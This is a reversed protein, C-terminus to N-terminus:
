HITIFDKLTESCSDICKIKRKRRKNKPKGDSYYAYLCLFDIEEINFLEELFRDDTQKLDTFFDFKNKDCDDNIKYFKKFQHNYAIYTVCNGVLTSYRTSDGSFYTQRSPIKMILLKDSKYIHIVEQNIIEKLIVEEEAVGYLSTTLLKAKFEVRQILISDINQASVKGALLLVFIIYINTKM